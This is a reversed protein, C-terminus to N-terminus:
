AKRTQSPWRLLQAGAIGALAALMLVTGCHWVLLILNSSHTHFLCVGLNGMGAAALGGLAASLRPTLPAGRQLMVGMAGAPVAAGILITVVCAWDVQGTLVGGGFQAYEQVAGVAVTGIWVTLPLLPLLTVSRRYGPIVTAFAAAAAALGTLLAAAQEIVFRPDQMRRGLDDRPSMVLVLVALYMAAVAAWGAMRILPRRLPTVPEVHEALSRILRDTNM